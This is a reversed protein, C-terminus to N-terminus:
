SLEANPRVLHRAAGDEQADPRRASGSAFLDESSKLHRAKSVLFTNSPGFVQIIKKVKAMVETM